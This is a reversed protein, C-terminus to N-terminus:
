LKRLEILKGRYNITKDIDNVAEFEEGDMWVIKGINGRYFITDGLNFMSKFVTLTENGLKMEFKTPSSDSVIAKNMQAEEYTPLYRSVTLMTVAQSTGMYNKVLERYMSDEPSFVKIGNVQDLNQDIAWDLLKQVSWGYKKLLEINAKNIRASATSDKERESPRM